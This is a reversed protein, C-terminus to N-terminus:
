KREKLLQTVTNHSSKLLMSNLSFNPSLLCANIFCAVLMDGAGLVNVNTLIEDVETKIEKSNKKYFVSGHQSHYLVGVNIKELINQIQEVDVDEDSVFLIDVNELSDINLITGACVDVSVYGNKIEKIFSYDKLENIYSIHHWNSSRIHPKIIHNSLNAQSARRSNIEDVFILSQGFETPNLLISLEPNIKNLYKWVNGISGVSHTEEGVSSFMVDYTLHGYLSVDFM